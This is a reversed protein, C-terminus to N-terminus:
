RLNQENIILNCSNDCSNCTLYHDYQSLRIRTNIWFLTMGLLYLGILGNTFLYDLSALLLFSGTVFGINLILHLVPNDFDIKHQILGLVVFLIGLNFIIEPFFYVIELYFYIISGFIALIGGIILGICGACLYYEGFKIIHTEYKECNPHHGKYDIYSSQNEYGKTRIQTLESCKTPFFGAIIGLVCIIIFLTGIVYNPIFILTQPPFFYM